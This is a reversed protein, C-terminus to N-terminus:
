DLPTAFSGPTSLQFGKCGKSVRVKWEWCFSCDSRSKKLGLGPVAAQLGVSLGTRWGEAVGAPLEWAGSGGGKGAGTTGALTEAGFAPKKNGVPSAGAETGFASGVPGPYWPEAKPSLM